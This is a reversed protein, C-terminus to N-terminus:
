RAREKGDMGLAPQAPRDAVLFGILTDASKLVSGVVNSQRNHSFSPELTV